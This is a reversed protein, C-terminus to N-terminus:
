QASGQATFRLMARAEGNNERDPWFDPAPRPAGISKAILNAIGFGPEAKGGKRKFSAISVVDMHLNKAAASERLAAVDEAKPEGSDRHSLVLLVPVPRDLMAAIRALLLDLRRLVTKRSELAALQRGDAM